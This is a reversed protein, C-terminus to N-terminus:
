LIVNNNTVCACVCLDLHFKIILLSFRQILKLSCHTSTIKRQFDVVEGTLIFGKKRVALSSWYSFVVRLKPLSASFFRLLTLSLFFSLFPFLVCVRRPTQASSECLM